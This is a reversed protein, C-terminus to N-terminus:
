ARPRFHEAENRLASTLKREIEPTHRLLPLSAGVAFMARGHADMIPVAWGVVGCGGVNSVRFVGAARERNLEGTLVEASPASNEALNGWPQRSLYAEFDRKPLSALLARGMAIQHPHDFLDETLNVTLAHVSPRWDITRLVDNCLRSAVVTEGFQASVRDLIPAAFSKLREVPNVGEGMEYFRYGLRYKRSDRHMELFGRLVMTRLLKQATPVKLDCRRALERLGIWDEAWATAELLQMARDVSQITDGM